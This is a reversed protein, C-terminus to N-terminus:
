SPNKAQDTLPESNRKSETSGELVVEDGKKLRYTCHSYAIGPGAREWESHTWIIFAFVFLGEAWYPGRAYISDVAIELSFDTAASTSPPYLGSRHSEALWSDQVFASM